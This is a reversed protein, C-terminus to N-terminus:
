CSKILKINIQNKSNNLYNVKTNLYKNGKIKYTNKKNIMNKMRIEMRNNISKYKM